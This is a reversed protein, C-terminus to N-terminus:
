ISDEEDEMNELLRNGGILGVARKYLINAKDGLKSQISLLIMLFPMVFVIRNIKDYEKGSLTPVFTILREILVLGLLMAGTQALVEFVLEFTGKMYSAEPVYRNLTKNLIVVPVLSLVGFQLLNMMDQKSDESFDFVHNSFRNLSSQKVMGGEILNSGGEM